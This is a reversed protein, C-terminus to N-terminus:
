RMFLMNTVDKDGLKKEKKEKDGLVGITMRNVLYDRFLIILFITIQRM